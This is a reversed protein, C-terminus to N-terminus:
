SAPLAGVGTVAQLAEFNRAARDAMEVAGQRARELVVPLNVEEYSSLTVPFSNVLIASIPLADHLSLTYIETTAAENFFFFVSSM